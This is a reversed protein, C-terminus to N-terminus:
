WGVGVVWCHCGLWGMWASALHQNEILREMKEEGSRGAIRYRFRHERDQNTIGSHSAHCIMAPLPCWNWVGHFVSGVIMMRSQLFAEQINKFTM